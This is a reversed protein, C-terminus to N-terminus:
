RVERSRGDLFRTVLFCALIVWVLIQVIGGTADDANLDRMEMDTRRGTVLQNADAARSRERRRSSCRTRLRGSCRGHWRRGACSRACARIARLDRAIFRAARSTKESAPPLKRAQGNRGRVARLRRRRPKDLAPSKTRIGSTARVERATSSRACRASDRPVLELSQFREFRERPCRKSSPSTTREERLLMAALHPRRVRRVRGRHTWGRGPRSFVAAHVDQMRTAHLHLARQARDRPM